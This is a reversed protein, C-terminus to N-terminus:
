TPGILAGIALPWCMASRITVEDSVPSCTIGSTAASATSSAPKKPRRHVPRLCNSPMAYPSVLHRAPPEDAELAPLPRALRGLEGREGGRELPAPDAHDDRALRAPARACLRDAGQEEFAIIPAPVRPRLCQQEGRRAAVMDVLRNPGREVTAHPHQAVTEEVTRQGILTFRAPEPHLRHAVEMAEAGLVEQGVARQHEAQVLGFARRAGPHAVAARPVADSRARRGVMRRDLSPEPRHGRVLRPPDLQDVGASRRRRNGRSQKVRKAVQQWSRRAPGPPPAIGRRM